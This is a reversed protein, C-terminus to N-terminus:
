ALECEGFLLLNDSEGGNWTLADRTGVEKLWADVQLISLM